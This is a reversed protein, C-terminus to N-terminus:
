FQFQKNVRIRCAHRHHNYPRHTGCRAPWPGTDIHYANVASWVPLCCTAPPCCLTSSIEPIFKKFLFSRLFNLIFIDIADLYPRFHYPWLHCSSRDAPQYSTCQGFSATPRNAMTSEHLKQDTKYMIFYLICYCLLTQASSRAAGAGSAPNYLYIQFLYLFTFFNSIFIDM